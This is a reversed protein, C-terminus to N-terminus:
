GLYWRLGYPNSVHLVMGVSPSAVPGHLTLSIGNQYSNKDQICQWSQLYM